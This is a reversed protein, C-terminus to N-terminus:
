PAPVTRLTVSETIPLTTTLVTSRKGTSDWQKLDLYYSGPALTVTGTTSGPITFTFLGTNDGALDKKFLAQSDPIPNGESDELTQKVTMGVVFGTMPKVTMNDPQYFQFPLVIDDGSVFAETFISGGTDM